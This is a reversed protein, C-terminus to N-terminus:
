VNHYNSYISASGRNVLIGWLSASTRMVPVAKSVLQSKQPMVSDWAFHSNRWYIKDMKMRPELVYPPCAQICASLFQLPIQIAWYFILPSLFPKTSISHPNDQIIKGICQPLQSTGVLVEGREKCQIFGYVPFCCLSFKVIVWTPFSHTWESEAGKWLEQQM